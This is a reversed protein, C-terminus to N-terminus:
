FTLWINILSQYVYTSEQSYLIKKGWYMDFNNHQTIHPKWELLELSCKELLLESSAEFGLQSHSIKIPLTQFTHKLSMLAFNQRKIPSTFFIEWVEYIMTHIRGHCMALLSRNARKFCASKREFSGNNFYM